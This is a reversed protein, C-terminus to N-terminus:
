KLNVTYNVGHIHEDSKVIECTGEVRSLQVYDTFAHGKFHGEKFHLTCYHGNDATLHVIGTEGKNGLAGERVLPALVYFYPEGDAYAKTIPNITPISMNKYDAEGASYPSTTNYNYFFIDTEDHVIAAFASGATAILCLGLAATRLHKLSM